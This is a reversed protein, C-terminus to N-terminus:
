PTPKSAFPRCRGVPVPRSYLALSSAAPMSGIVNGSVQIDATDARTARVSVATEGRVGSFTNARIIIPVEGGSSIGLGDTDDFRNGDM